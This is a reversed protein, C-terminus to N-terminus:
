KTLWLKIIAIILGGIAAISGYIIKEMRGIKEEMVALRSETKIIHGNFNNKIEKVDEMMQEMQEGMKEMLVTQRILIEKDDPM